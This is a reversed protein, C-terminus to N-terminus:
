LKTKPEDEKLKFIEPHRERFSKHKFLSKLTQSFSLSWSFVGAACMAPIIGRAFMWGKDHRMMDAFSRHFRNRFPFDVCQMRYTMITMAGFMVMKELFGLSFVEDVDGEPYVYELSHDDEETTTETKTKMEMSLNDFGIKWSSEKKKDDEEKDFMIDSPNGQEKIEKVLSYNEFVEEPPMEVEDHVKESPHV